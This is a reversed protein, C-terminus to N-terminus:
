DARLFFITPIILFYLFHYIVTTCVIFMTKSTLTNPHRMVSLINMFQRFMLAFAVVVLALFTSWVQKVIPLSNKLDVDGVTLAKGLLLYSLALLGVMIFFTLIKM